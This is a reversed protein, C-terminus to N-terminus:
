TCRSATGFDHLGTFQGAVLVITVYVGVLPGACHSIGNQRLEGGNGFRGEEPSAFYFQYRRLEECGL